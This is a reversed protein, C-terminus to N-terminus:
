NLIIYNCPTLFYFSGALINVNRLCKGQRPLVPDWGPRLFVTTLGFNSQWPLIPRSVEKYVAEIWEMNTISDQADYWHEPTRGRLKDIFAELQYRYRHVSHGFRILFRLTGYSSM